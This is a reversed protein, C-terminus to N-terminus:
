KKDWVRHLIFPFPTDLRFLWLETKLSGESLTNFTKLPDLVKQSDQHPGNARPTPTLIANGWILVAWDYRM